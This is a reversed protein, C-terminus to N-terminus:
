ADRTTRNNTEDFSVPIVFDNGFTGGKPNGDVVYAAGGGGSDVAQPHPTGSAAMWRAQVTAM